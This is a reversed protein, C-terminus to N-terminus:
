YTIAGTKTNKDRFNLMQVLIAMRSFKKFNDKRGILITKIMSNCTPSFTLFGLVGIIFQGM